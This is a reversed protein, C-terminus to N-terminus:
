NSLQIRAIRRFSMAGIISWRRLMLTASLGAFILNHKQHDTANDKACVNEDHLAIIKQRLYRRNLVQAALRARLIKLRYKYEASVWFSPKNIKV